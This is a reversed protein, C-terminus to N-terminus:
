SSKEKLRIRPHTDELLLTPESFPALRDLFDLVELIATGKFFRTNPVDMWVRGAYNWVRHPTDGVGDHDRDFGEYDDWSNGDWTNRKASGGGFVAVETLNSEMRNRRFVNREWDSIFAIAIDNYAIRNDEIINQTDPQFPSVDFALATACYVIENGTITIASAEKMSICTGTAGVSHSIVNNRVVDGQDYMMSIGVSNNVFQNNEIVNDMSFMFHMGYRGGTAHTGSVRNRKAYWLVFDRSDHIENDELTNDDSYWLRISDGRMGLELPKSSIHNRRIVNFYSKQLDIGFLADEIRNDKVVNNNGRVQIGADEANHDSGTGVLHLNRVTANDTRVVLITGQGGGDITVQGGGDLVVPKTVEVHGVYRGAPPAIVAGDAAADLMAQIEAADRAAPTEPPRAAWVAAPVAVCALLLGLRRVM